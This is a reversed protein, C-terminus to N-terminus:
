HLYIEFFMAQAHSRVVVDFGPYQGWKPRMRDVAKEIVADRFGAIWEYFIEDQQVYPGFPTEAMAAGVNARIDALYDIVLRVDDRDGPNSHGPCLIQWEISLLERVSKEYGDIDEAVGFDMFELYGPHVLDVNHLVGEDELLIWSNDMTHGDAPTGVLVTTGEFEFTGRPVSVVETPLPIKNGFKEIQAKTATTGVIRLPTNTHRANEVYDNAGSVHDLHYHSYVLTTVPLNTIEGIAKLFNPVRGCCPADIVMVGAEGVVVTSQYGSIEVWYVHETLRQIIYPQQAREFDSGALKQGPILPVTKSATIVNSPPAVVDTAQAWAGRPVLAALALACSVGAVVHVLSTYTTTKM